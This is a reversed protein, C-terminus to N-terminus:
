LAWNFICVICFRLCIHIQDYVFIYKITGWCRNWKAGGNPCLLVFSVTLIKLKKRLRKHVLWFMLAGSTSKICFFFDWFFIFFLNSSKHFHLFSCMKRNVAFRKKIRITATSNLQTWEARRGGISRSYRGQTIILIFFKTSHRSALSVSTSPSFRGWHWKTWWLDWMGRRWDSVAQAIARGQLGPKWLM